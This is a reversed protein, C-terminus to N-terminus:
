LHIKIAKATKRLTPKTDNVIDTMKFIFDMLPKSLYKISRSGKQANVGNYQQKFFCTKQAKESYAQDVRFVM